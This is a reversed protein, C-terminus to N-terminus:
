VKKFEACVDVNSIDSPLRPSRRLLLEAKTFAEWVIDEFSTSNKKADKQKEQVWDTLRNFTMKMQAQFANFWTAACVNSVGKALGLLVIANYVQKRRWVQKRDIGALKMWHKPNSSILAALPPKGNLGVSFEQWVDMADTVPQLSANLSSIPANEQRTSQAQSIPATPRPGPSQPSSSPVPRVPQPSAHSMPPTSPM